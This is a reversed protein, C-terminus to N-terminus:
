ARRFETSGRPNQTSAVDSIESEADLTYEGVDALWEAEARSITDGGNIERESGDAEIVWARGAGGAPREGM